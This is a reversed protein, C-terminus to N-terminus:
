FRKRSGKLAASFPAHTPPPSGKYVDWAISANGVDILLHMRPDGKAYLFSVSLIFM